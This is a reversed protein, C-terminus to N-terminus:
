FFLQNRGTNDVIPLRLTLSQYHLRGKAETEVVHFDVIDFSRTAFEKIDEDTRWSFFRPLFKDEKFIGEISKGGYVGMYFLGGPRIIRRFAELVIPLDVNPVHLICNLAYVADFYEDPFDLHMFDMVRADLGKQRCRAVMAPSLDTAIVELGNNQFFVSDYGTGAGVELLRKCKINRLRQLFQTREAVKWDWPVAGKLDRDDACAEYAERLRGIIESYEIRAM